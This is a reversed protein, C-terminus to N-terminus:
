IKEYWRSRMIICYNELARRHGLKLFPNSDWWTKPEAMMKVVTDAGFLKLTDTYQELPPDILMLWEELPLTPNPVKTRYGAHLACHFLVRSTGETMGMLHYDELTASRLAGVTDFGFRRLTPAEAVLNIPLSGLWVEIPVNTPIHSLFPTWQSVVNRPGNLQELVLALDEPRLGVATLDDDEALGLAFESLWGRQAFQQTYAEMGSRRTALWQRIDMSRAVYLVHLSCPVAAAM